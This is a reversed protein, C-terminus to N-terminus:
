IEDKDKNIIEGDIIKGNKENDNNEINKNKFFNKFLLKRTLPILLIFGFIITTSLSECSLSSNFLYSDFYLEITQFLFSFFKPKELAQLIPAFNAVEFHISNKFGSVIIGM